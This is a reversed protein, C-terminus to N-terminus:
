GSVIKSILFGQKRKKKIQGPEDPLLQKVKRSSLITPVFIGCFFPKM